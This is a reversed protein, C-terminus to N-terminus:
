TADLYIRSHMMVRRSRNRSRLLTHKPWVRGRMPTAPMRCSDFENMTLLV